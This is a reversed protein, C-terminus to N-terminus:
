PTYKMAVVKSPDYGLYFAGRRRKFNGCPTVQLKGDWEWEKLIPNVVPPLHGAIIIREYLDDSRILGDSFIKRLEEHIGVRRPNFLFQTTLSNEAGARAELFKQAGLVHKTIFILHFIRHSAGTAPKARTHHATFKM